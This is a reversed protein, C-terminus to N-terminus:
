GVTGLAKLVVILTSLRTSVNATDGTSLNAFSVQAVPVAGYMGLLATSIGWQSGDPSGYDLREYTPM